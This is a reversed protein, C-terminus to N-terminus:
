EGAKVLLELAEPTKATHEVTERLVTPNYQRGNVAILKTGPAIGAKAAPGNFALDSITADEKVKVGISFSLNVNKDYEEQAKYMESRTGSYVLKWGGNTIGELPPRAQVKRVRQDFFATWDYPQI